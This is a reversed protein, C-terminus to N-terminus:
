RPRDIIRLCLDNLHNHGPHEVVFVAPTPRKRAVFQRHQALM